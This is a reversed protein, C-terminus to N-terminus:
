LEGAPPVAPPPNCPRLDPPPAVGADAAAVDTPLNLVVPGGWAARGFADRLMAGARRPSLVTEAQAGCARAFAVQDFGNAAGPDALPPAGAVLLVPAAHGRASALSTGVQSLGPGQTVTCVGVRGRVRAYGDAMAVAGQETRAQVITVGRQALAVVLGLNGDGMLSFVHEVGARKLAEAILEDVRM